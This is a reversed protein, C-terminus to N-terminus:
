SGDRAGLYRKGNGLDDVLHTRRRGEGKMETMQGETAYHLVYNRRVMFYQVESFVMM